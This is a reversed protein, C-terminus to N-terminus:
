AHAAPLGEAFVARLTAVGGADRLVRTPHYGCRALPLDHVKGDVARVRAVIAAPESGAGEEAGELEVWLAQTPPQSALWNRMGAEYEAREGPALYDRLVTQYALVVAGRDAASLVDLRAPVATAAVPALVPGDPRTRAARFAAIAAELRALREQEGAWVCARLWDADEDRTLDIPAPDLGLRAVTRIGQAIELAAGREDTWIPPLLDAVLNLGASAGVDALAVARAGNSLGALRAPWLWAVARSTENTQLRRHVLADFARERGGDLAAALAAATVAEARPAPAAFGEFLPHPPGERLADFRLAALLLLPRDWWPLFSRDAWASALRRGPAGALVGPLLALAREYPPSRGAVTARQRALEDALGDTGKRGNAM